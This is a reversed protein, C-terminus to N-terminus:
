ANAVAYFDIKGTETNYTVRYTGATNCTLNGSTVAFKDNADGSTGLNDLGIWEGNGTTAGEDYKALGLPWDKEFTLTIEYVNAETESKTLKYQANFAHDWGNMGGKIYIDFGANASKITMIKSNSDFSIDHVGETKVKINNNTDSAAEFASNAALYAHQYDTHTHNWDATEGAAYARLLLESGATLKVNKIEYVGSGSATETLKFNAPTTIFDGYNHGDFNGDIYYDYAAPTKDEFTVALTKATSGYTFTYMGSAVATMNGGAETYGSVLTRSEATLANSKIYESGTSSTTGSSEIQTVQSTFMFIDGEKLYISM